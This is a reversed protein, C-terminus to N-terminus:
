VGWKAGEPKSLLSPPVLILVPTQHFNNVAFLNNVDSINLHASLFAPLQYM